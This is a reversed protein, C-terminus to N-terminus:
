KVLLIIHGIHNEILPSQNYNTAKGVYRVIYNGLSELTITNTGEAVAEGKLGEILAKTFIGNQAEKTEASVESKTSSYFGTVSPVAMRIDEASKTGFMAGSHCADMFIIVKCAKDEAMYNCQEKIFDFALGSHPRQASADKTMFYAKKENVKVGHGSFYLIVVDGQPVKKALDVLEDELHERTAEEQPILHCELHDYMNVMGSQKIAEVFDHADKAAFSLDTLDESDYQSIGVAFLHLAPKVKGGVYYLSIYDSEKRGDPISAKVEINCKKEPDKPVTLLITTGEKSAPRVGKTTVGTQPDTREGNVYFTVTGKTSQNEVNTVYRLELPSSTYEGGDKPSIIRILISDLSTYRQPTQSAPPTSSSPNSGAHRHDIQIQLSQLEQSTFHHELGNDDITKLSQKSTFKVRRYRFPIIERGLVDTVGWYGAKRAIFVAIEAFMTKEAVVREYQPSAYHLRNESVVDWLGQYNRLAYYTVHDYEGVVFSSDVETLLVSRQAM